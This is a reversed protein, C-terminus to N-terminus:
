NKYIRKPGSENPTEDIYSHIFHLAIMLNEINVSTTHTKVFFFAFKKEM